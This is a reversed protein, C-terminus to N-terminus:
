SQIHEAQQLAEALRDIHATTNYLHCSVRIFRRQKWHIIPVEIQHKEWLENQLPDPIGPKPPDGILPPIPLSIMSGFWEPSDPVIPALQTFNYITDRAYCALAHTQKRFKELGVETLFKIATPVTLFPAPDRTGSWTFEHKWHFPRGELSGGWSVILPELTQIWKPAAFLFGSGFPACLWKHCSATYFDCGIEAINVETQALAHPGDVCVLVQKQKAAACIEKVPLITATGSTIHSIILIKTRSTMASIVSEVVEDVTTAPCPLTCVKLHADAADCKKQWIRRVAGYEQDTLLVEDGAELQLSNAVINM